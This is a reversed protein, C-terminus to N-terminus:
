TPAKDSCRAIVTDLLYKKSLFKKITDNPSNETLFYFYLGGLIELSAFVFSCIFAHLNLM